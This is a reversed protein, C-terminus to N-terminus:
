ERCHRPIMRQPINLVIVETITKLNRMTFGLRRFHEGKLTATANCKTPLLFNLRLALSRINNLSPAMGKPVIINLVMKAVLM